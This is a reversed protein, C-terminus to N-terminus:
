KGGLVRGKYTANKEPLRGKERKNQHRSGHQCGPCPESQLHVWECSTCGIQHVTCFKKNITLVNVMQQRCGGKSMLPCHHTTSKGCGSPMSAITTTRSNDYNTTNLTISPCLTHDRLGSNSYGLSSIMVPYKMCNGLGGVFRADKLSM